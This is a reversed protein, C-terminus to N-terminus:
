AGAWKLFAAIAASLMIPGCHAEFVGNEVRCHMWEAEADLDKVVVFNKSELATGTLDVHLFWGPNDLTGISVGYQHEWDGDCQDLYWRQLAELEKM